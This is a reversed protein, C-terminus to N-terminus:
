GKSEYWGFYACLSARKNNIYIISNKFASSQVFFTLKLFVFINM